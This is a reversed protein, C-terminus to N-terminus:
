TVKDFERLLIQATSKALLAISFIVIGSPIKFIQSHANLFL